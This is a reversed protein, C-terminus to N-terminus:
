KLFQDLPLHKKVADWYHPDFKQQKLMKIEYPHPTVSHGQNDKISPTELIKPVNVLAPYHAVYNLAKFGIYGMGIDEHRDKHAGLPNKSDNLHIVKLYKLGIKHDFENIVDDFHNKIDYGADDTHCTDLCVAVKSKDKVGNIMEAIQDFNRGVETGKGAMTEIAIQTTQDSTIVENLGKIDSQIGKEAGAGVHAGPHWVMENAGIAESRKVETRLMSVGFGFTKPRKTNALNIIYPAHVVVPAMDHDKMFAKAEPIHLKDLATRRSSYPTGTFVMFVNEGYDAAMKASGLFQDKGKMNVHSGILFRKESM